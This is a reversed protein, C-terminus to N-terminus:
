PTRRQQMQEFTVPPAASPALGRQALHKMADAIPMRGDGNLARTDEARMAALEEEPLVQLLPAPAPEVQVLSAGGPEDPKDRAENWRGLGRYLLLSIGLIAALFVGLAFGAFAISRVDVDSREHDSM